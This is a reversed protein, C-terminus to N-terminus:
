DVGVFDFDCRSFPTEDRSDERTALREVASLSELDTKTRFSAAKGDNQERLTIRQYDFDWGRAQLQGPTCSKLCNMLYGFFGAQRKRLRPLRHPFSPSPYRHSSVM